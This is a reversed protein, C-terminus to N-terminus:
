EDLEEQSLVDQLRERKYPKHVPHNLEIDEYKSKRAYDKKRNRFTKPKCFENMNKAVPNNKIPNKKNSM